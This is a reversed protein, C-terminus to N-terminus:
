INPKIKLAKKLNDALTRAKETKLMGDTNVGSRPGDDTIFQRFESWSNSVAVCHNIEYNVISALRQTKSIINIMTGRAAGTSLFYVNADDLIDELLADIAELRKRKKDMPRKIAYVIAAVAIPLAATLIAAVMEKNLFCATLLSELPPLPASKM